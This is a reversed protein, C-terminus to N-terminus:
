GSWDPASLAHHVQQLEKRLSEQSIPGGLCIRLKDQGAGSPIFFDSPLIGIQRGFLRALAEARNLGDPLTLWINFADPASDFTMGTLAEKAIQQRERAASRVFAQVQAATGDEIWTSLLALSIPSTM